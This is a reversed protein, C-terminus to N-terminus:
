ITTGYKLEEIVRYALATGGERAVMYQDDPDSFWAYTKTSYFMKFADIISVKFEKVLVDVVEDEMYRKALWETKRM